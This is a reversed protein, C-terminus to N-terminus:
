QGDCASDFRNANCTATITVDAAVGDCLVPNNTIGAGVCTATIANQCRENTLPIFGQNCTTVASTRADEYTADGQCVINFPNGECVPVIAVAAFPAFTQTQDGHWLNGLIETRLTDYATDDICRAHYPNDTCFQAQQPVSCTSAACARLLKM